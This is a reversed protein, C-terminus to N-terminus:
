RKRGWSKFLYYAVTVAMLICAAFGGVGLTALLYHQGVEKINDPSSIVDWKKLHPKITYNRNVILTLTDNTYYSGHLRNNETYFISLRHNGAITMDAGILKVIGATSSPTLYILITINDDITSSSLDYSYGIKSTVYTYLMSDNVQTRAYGTADTQTNNVQISLNNYIIITANALPNLTNFDFVGYEIQYTQAATCGTLLLLLLLKKM